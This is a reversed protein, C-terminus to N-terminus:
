VLVINVDSVQYSISDAVVIGIVSILVLQSTMLFYSVLAFMLEEYFVSCMLQLKVDRKLVFIAIDSVFFVYAVLVTFYKWLVLM